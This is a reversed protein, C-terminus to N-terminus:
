QNSDANKAEKKKASAFRRYYNLYALIETTAARLKASDQVIIWNTFDGIGSPAEKDLQAYHAIAGELVEKHGANDDLAFAIAGLLGNQQIMAPVKKVVDGGNEGKPDFNRSANLANMARIQELNQM